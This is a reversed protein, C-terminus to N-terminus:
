RDRVIEERQLSQHSVRFFAQFLHSDTFALPVLALFTSFGGQLVAPGIDEIAKYAKQNRTGACLSINNLINVLIM